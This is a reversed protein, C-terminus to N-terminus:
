SRRFIFPYRVQVLEHPAPFAISSIVGAVCQSVQPDLGSASSTMVTGSPSIVFSAEVTGELEPNGLLQKEYCYSIKAVSRKIYRRIMEKDPGCGGAGCSPPGVHLPPVASGRRGDGLRCVAGLRCGGGAYPGNGRGDDGITHYRARGGVTHDFGDGGPGFGQRSGFGRGNAGGADLSDPDGFFTAADLGSSVDSDGTVDAWRAERLAGSSFLGSNRAQELAEARSLQPRDATRAQAMRRDSATEQPDGAKGSPLAMASDESESAAGSDAADRESVEPKDDHAVANLRSSLDQGASLDFSGVAAEVPTARLIAWLALHALASVAVYGLTRSDWRATLAAVQAVPRAVAALLLTAAGCRLRVQGARPLHLEVAGDACQRADGRAILESLPTTVGDCILEGGLERTTRVLLRGGRSSVLAFSPMPASSIPLEVEPATGIRFLPHLRERQRQWLGLAFAGLALGLAGFAVLDYGPGLLRERFSSLPRHLESLWTVRQAHNDAAVSLSFAFALIATLAALAAGIFYTRARLRGTAPQACHKVAVVSDGLMAVVEIAQEREDISSAIPAAPGALGGAAVPLSPAAALPAASPAVSSAVPSVVPALAVSSAPAVSSAVPAPTVSSAASSAVAAVVPSPQRLQAIRTAPALDVQGARGFLARGSAAVAVVSTAPATAARAPAAAVRVPAGSAPAATVAM